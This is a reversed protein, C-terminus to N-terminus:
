RVGRQEGEGTKKIAPALRVPFPEPIDFAAKPRDGSLVRGLVPDAEKDFFAPEDEGWWNGAFSLDRGQGDGMKVAYGNGHINNKEFVSGGRCETVAFIGVENDRIVNERVTGPHGREEFRIGNRNKEIVSHVISFDATSFRVGDVNGSFISNEVTAKSYHVQIGSYADSVQIFSLVAGEAFNIHLYKWDRPMPKNEASALIIPNEATGVATLRGEVTLEADGVGDGDWDIKKFLVRTGPELTLHGGRKVIVISDVTVVGSWREEGSVVRVPMDHLDRPAPHCGALFLVFLPALFGIM